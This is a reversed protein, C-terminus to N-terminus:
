CCWTRAGPKVIEGSPLAIGYLSEVLWEAVIGSGGFGGVDPVNGILSVRGRGRQDTGTGGAGIRSARREGVATRRERGVEEGPVDREDPTTPRGAGGHVNM